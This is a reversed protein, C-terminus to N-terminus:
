AVKRILGDEFAALPMPRGFYFGQFEECGGERLFAFQEATEVGEALVSLDLDRGLQIISRALSASRENETVEQVFSRDIKLQTLPLRRLYGLSSYGTGFDDLAMGVGISRLIQMKAAVLETNTVMVSETVELKLLAPDISFTDIVHLVSQEFDEDLFQSASVNVSLALQALDANSRWRVLTQCATELVWHGIERMLGADEALPIFEGPSVYGRIPHKWRLLAEAGIIRGSRDVQPQYFLEFQRNWLASKLEQGARGPREVQMQFAFICGALILTAVVANLVAGYVRIEDGIPTAFPLAFSTSALLVFSALSLGILVLQTKSPRHKFHLYGLLALPLLFIHSVRPVEASPVDFLLCLEAIFSLFVVQTLLIAMTLKGNRALAWSAFSVGALVLQSIVLVAHGQTVFFLSWFLSLGAIVLAVWQYALAFRRSYQTQQASAQQPKPEALLIV